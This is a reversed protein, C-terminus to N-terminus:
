CHQRNGAIEPAKPASNPQEPSSPAAREVYERVRDPYADAYARAWEDPIPEPAPTYGPAYGKIMSLDYSDPEGDYSEISVEGDGNVGDAIVSLEFEVLVRDGKRLKTPDFSTPEAAPKEVGSLYDRTGLDAWKEPIQLAPKEVKYAIIDSFVGEWSWRFAGALWPGLEATRHTKIYIPTKEPVPCEGGKWEIWEANNNASM